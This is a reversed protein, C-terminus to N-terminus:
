TPRNRGSRLSVKRHTKPAYLISTSPHPKRSAAFSATTPSRIPRFPSRMLGPTTRATEASILPSHKSLLPLVSGFSVSARLNPRRWTTRLSVRLVGSMSPSWTRTSTQPRFASLGECNRRRERGEWSSSRGTLSWSVLACHIKGGDVATYSQGGLSTQPPTM